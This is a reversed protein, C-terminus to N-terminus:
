VQVLDLTVSSRVQHYMPKPNTQAREFKPLPSL